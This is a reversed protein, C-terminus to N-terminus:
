PVFTEGTATMKGKGKMLNRPFREIRQAGRKLLRILILKNVSVVRKKIEL